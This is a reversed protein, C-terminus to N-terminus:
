VLHSLAVFKQLTTSHHRATWLLRCNWRRRWFAWTWCARRIRVIERWCSGFNGLEGLREFLFRSLVRWVRSNSKSNWIHRRHAFGQQPLAFILYSFLIVFNESLLKWFLIFNETSVRLILQASVFWGRGRAVNGSSCDAAVTAMTDDTYIWVIRSYIQLRKKERNWFIVDKKGKKLIAM